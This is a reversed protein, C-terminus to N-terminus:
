DKEKEVNIIWGWEGTQQDYQAHGMEVAEREWAVNTTSGVISGVVLAGFILGTLLGVIFIGFSFDKDMVFAQMIEIRRKTEQKDAM